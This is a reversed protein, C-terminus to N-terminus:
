RSHQEPDCFMLRNIHHIGIDYMPEIPQGEGDTSAEYVSPERSYEDFITNLSAPPSTQMFNLGLYFGLGSLITMLSFAPVALAWYKNPYYYIGLYHLCPEPLYAWILFIVTAVITTISGVFGYVESPKPSQDQSIGLQSSRVGSDVLAVNTRRNSLSLFRRPSSVSHSESM